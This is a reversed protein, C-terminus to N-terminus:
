KGFWGGTPAEYGPVFHSLLAPENWGMYIFWAGTAMVGLGALRAANGMFVRSSWKDSKMMRGTAVATLGWVIFMFGIVGQPSFGLAVGGAVGIIASLNGLINSAWYDSRRVDNADAVGERRALVPDSENVLRGNVTGHVKPASSGGKRAMARLEEIMADQEASAGKIPAAPAARMPASVPARKGFSMAYM